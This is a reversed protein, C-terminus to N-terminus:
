DKEKKGPSLKRFLKGLGTVEEASLIFINNAKVNVKNAPIFIRVPYDLYLGEECYEVELRGVPFKKIKKNVEM